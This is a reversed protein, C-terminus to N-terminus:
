DRRYALFETFQMRLKEHGSEMSYDQYEWHDRYVVGSVGACLANSVCQICPRLTCYLMSQDLLIGQKAASSIACQEAHLCICSEYPMSGRDEEAGCRPCGAAVCSDFQPLFIGNWGSSLVIGDRVIVAGVRRVACTSNVSALEAMRLHKQHKISTSGRM